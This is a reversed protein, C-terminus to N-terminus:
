QATGGGPCAAGAFTAAFNAATVTSYLYTTGNNDVCVAGGSKLLGAAIYTTAASNTYAATGGNRTSIDSTYNSNAAWNNYQGSNGSAYSEADTRLQAIDSKIRADAAKNRASNLAVLIMAALIGIIAIVVLLEILTFGKRM